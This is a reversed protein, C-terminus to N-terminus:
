KFSIDIIEEPESNDYTSTKKSDNNNEERNEIISEDGEVEDEEGEKLEQHAEELQHLTEDQEYDDTKVLIERPKAGDVPGVVGQEELLDLLRAARAYGIRLRRQLYSASAKQSRIIIEKAEPLLEDDAEFDSPLYGAVSASLPVQTIAENYDPAGKQKLFHVVKEIEQDTLYAGQLRKPKSLESSIYLMDGRGLLKEAGAHDLITRSDVSSAVSFAVRSTINAKILGTIINVSPRQTALVLHIGVARAMQSLRIVATEVDFPAVTMLDALEDVILILYPIKEGQGSANYVAINRKGANSLIEFRREMEKVTWRLASVTKKIDTIVPCILHPVGNFQPMEVRKPDILILKLDDPQNQFLLSVIISNLCVTKGSGTAGAVLLHPMKELDALWPQGAVDKGLSIMLNSHRHKFEEAALVEKLPVVAIKQNPVEIGVLSKGPIPAEIRIPHAALALALDNNLTTIQSVKVGSAPKFTYQTVTPGVSVDGMEVEIGFHSLTKKIIEQYARIDGANPKTSKGDLLELPIDIRPFKRRPRPFLSTQLRPKDKAFDEGSIEDIEFEKQEFGIEETAMAEEEDTEQPPRKLFNFLNLKPLKIKELISNLTTDFFLLLSILFAALLIIIAGWFSAIKKLPISIFYGLLGGGLGEQSAALNQDTSFLQLLGFISLVCLLLGFWHSFKLNIKEQNISLYVVVLLIIPWLWWGWGFIMQWFNDLAQGATGTLNFISLLSFIALAALFIALIDRKIEPSLHFKPPKIRSESRKSSMFHYYFNPLLYYVSLHIKLVKIKANKPFNSLSFLTCYSLFMFATVSRPLTQFEMTRGLHFCDKM